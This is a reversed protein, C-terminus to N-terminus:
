SSFRFGTMCFFICSYRWLKHSVYSHTLICSDCPCSFYILNIISCSPDVGLSLGGCFFYLLFDLFRYSCLYSCLSIQNSFSPVDCLFSKVSSCFPQIYLQFCFSSMIVCPLLLFLIAFINNNKSHLTVYLLWPFVHFIYLIRFYCDGHSVTSCKCFFRPCEWPLWFRSLFEM